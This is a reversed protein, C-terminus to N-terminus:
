GFGFDLTSGQAVTLNGAVTVTGMAGTSAGPALTGGDAVTVDGGITGAGGLTAGSAVDVPGGSTGNVVLAGGTVSASGGLAAGEAVTLSGGSVTTTGAFGSSDGTLTTQGSLHLLEHKRNTGTASNILAAEFTTAGTHNFVLKAEGNGFYINGAELLGAAAADEGALAGIALVGSSGDGSAIEVDGGGDGYRDGDEDG